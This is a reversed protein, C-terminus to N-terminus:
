LSFINRYLKPAIVKNSFLSNFYNRSRYTNLHKNKKKINIRSFTKIYSAKYNNSVSYEITKDLQLSSEPSNVITLGYSMAELISLPMSEARSPLFLVENSKYLDPLAGPSVFGKYICNSYKIALDQIEPKMIGDGAITFIFNKPSNKVVEILRDVGKRRSLEGVFLIHLKGDQKITTTTKQPVMGNPVYEINKMKYEQTFLALDRKNLVHVKQTKSLIYKSLSSSYITNHLHDFFTEPSQYLFPSHLGAVTKSLGSLGTFYILIMLEPLEYRAYILRSNQFIKRAQKWQNTFPIFSKFDLSLHNHIDKTSAREDFKRKLVISSYISAISGAVSVLNTEEYKSIKKATENMWKEAGGMFSIPAFNLLLIM